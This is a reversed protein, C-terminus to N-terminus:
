GDQIEQWIGVDGVDVADLRRKKNEPSKDMDKGENRGKGKAAKLAKYRDHVLSSLTKIEKDRGGLGWDLINNVAARCAKLSDQETLAYSRINHM